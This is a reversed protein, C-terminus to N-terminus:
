KFKSCCGSVSSFTNDYLIGFLAEFKPTSLPLFNQRGTQYSFVQICINHKQVNGM